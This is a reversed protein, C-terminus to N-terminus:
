IFALYPEIASWVELAVECAPKLVPELWEAFLKWPCMAM